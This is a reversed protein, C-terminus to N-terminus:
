TIIFESGLVFILKRSRKITVNTNLLELYQLIIMKITFKIPTARTQNQKAIQFIYLSLISMSEVMIVSM